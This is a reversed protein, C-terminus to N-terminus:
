TQRRPGHKHQAHADTHDRRHKDEILKDMVRPTWDYSNDPHEEDVRNYCAVQEERTSAGKHLKTLYLSEFDQQWATLTLQRGHLGM